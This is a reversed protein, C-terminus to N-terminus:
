SQGLTVVDLVQWHGGGTGGGDRRLRLRFTGGHLPSEYYSAQGVAQDHEIRVSHLYVQRSGSRGAQKAAEYDATSLTQLAGGVEGPHKVEGDESVRCESSPYARLGSATLQALLAPAPDVVPQGPREDLAVCVFPPMGGHTAVQHVILLRVQDEDSLGPATPAAPAHTCAVVAAFVLALFSRMPRLRCRRGDARASLAQRPLAPAIM